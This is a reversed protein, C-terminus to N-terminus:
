RAAPTGSSSVSASALWRSWASTCCRAATPGCRRGTASRSHGTAAPPPSGTARCPNGPGGGAVRARQRGLGCCWRPSRSRRRPSSPRAPAPLGGPHHPDDRSRVRRDRRAGGARGRRGPRPVGRVPQAQDPRLRLVPGLARLEAAHPGLDGARRGGDDAGRGRAADVGHESQACSRGSPGCREATLPPPMLRGPPRAALPRSRTRRAAYACLVGLGAWPGIVQGTRSRRSSRWGPSRRSGASGSTPRAALDGARRDAAARRARHRVRDCRRYAPPAGRHRPQVARARGPVSGHRRGRARHRRGDAVRAPVGAPQLRGYHLGPQALLFAASVRHDARHRVGRRGLVVAKAALVHGRRPGAALTTRILGTRYEATM